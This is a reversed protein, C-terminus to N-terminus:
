CGFTLSQEGHRANRLATGIQLPMKCYRECRRPVRQEAGRRMEQKELCAAAAISDIKSLLPQCAAQTEFRAAAVGDRCICVDLGRHTAEASLL